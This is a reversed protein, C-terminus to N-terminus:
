LNLSGCIPCRRSFLGSHCPAPRHNKGSCPKPAILFACTFHSRDPAPWHCDRHQSLTTRLDGPARPLQAPEACSRPTAPGVAHGTRRPTKLHLARTQGTQLRSPTSNHLRCPEGFRRASETCDRGFGRRPKKNKQKKKISISISTGFNVHFCVPGILRCSRVPSRLRLLRSAREAPLLSPGPLALAGLM